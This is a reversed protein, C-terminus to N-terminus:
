YQYWNNSPLPPYPTIHHHSNNRNNSNNSVTTATSSSAPGASKRCIATRKRDCIKSCKIRRGSQDSKRRKRTLWKTTATATATTTTTTTPQQCCVFAFDVEILDIDSIIVYYPTIILRICKNFPTTQQSFQNLISVYRRSSLLPHHYPTTTTTPPPPHWQQWKLKWVSCHISFLRLSVILYRTLRFRCNRNRNSVEPWQNEM